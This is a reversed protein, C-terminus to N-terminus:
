KDNVENSSYDKYIVNSSTGNVAEPFDFKEM